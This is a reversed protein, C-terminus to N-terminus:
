QRRHPNGGIEDGRFIGVSARESSLIRKLKEFAVQQSEGWVFEISDRLLIRLPTTFTSNEDIFKAYYNVPGLFGHLSIKDSPPLM